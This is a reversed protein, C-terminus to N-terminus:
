LALCLWFTMVNEVGTVLSNRRRKTSITRTGGGQSIIGCQRATVVLPFLTAQPIRDALNGSEWSGVLQSLAGAYCVTTIRESRPCKRRTGGAARIAQARADRWTRGRHKVAHGIGLTPHQVSFGVAM